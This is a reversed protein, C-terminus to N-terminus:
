RDASGDGQSENGATDNNADEGLSSEGLLRQLEYSFAGLLDGRQVTHCELCQEAARLAGMMRVTGDDSEEMVLDEQFWLQKLAASEFADLERTPVDEASLQDMRPLHDLVYVQPTDFRLLSVLELRRISWAEPQQLRGRVPYHFGHPQFGAFRLDDSGVRWGFGIPDLFDFASVRHLDEVSVPARFRNVGQWGNNVDFDELTRADNVEVNTLPPRSVDRPSHRIFMRAVGFGQARVFHEYQQSHLTEFQRRFFEVASIEMELDDLAASTHPSNVATRRPLKDPQEYALRDTLAVIPYVKRLARVEDFARMGSIVVLVFSILYCTTAIMLASKAKLPRRRFSLVVGVVFLLLVNPILAMSPYVPAACCVFLPLVILPTFKFRRPSAALFVFGASLIAAHFVGGWFRVNSVGSESLCWLFVACLAVIGFLDKLTLRLGDPEPADAATAETPQPAEAEAPQQRPEDM